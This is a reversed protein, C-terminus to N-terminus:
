AARIGLDQAASINYSVNLARLVHGLLKFTKKKIVAPIAKLLVSVIVAM